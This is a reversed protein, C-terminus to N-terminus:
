HNAWFRVASWVRDFGEVIDIQHSAFLQESM